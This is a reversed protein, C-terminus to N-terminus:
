CPRLGEAEVFYRAGDPLTVLVPGDAPPKRVHGEVYGRITEGPDPGEGVPLGDERKCHSEDAIGVSNGRDITRVTFVREGSFAGRRLTCPVLVTSM